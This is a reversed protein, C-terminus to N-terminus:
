SYSIILPNLSCLIPQGDGRRHISMRFKITVGLIQNLISDHRWLEKKESLAKVSRRDTSPGTLAETECGGSYPSKVMEPM